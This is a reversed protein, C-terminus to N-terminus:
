RSNKDLWNFWETQEQKNIGLQKFLDSLKVKYNSFDPSKNKKLTALLKIFLNIDTPQLSVEQELLQIAELTKNQKLLQDVMISVFPHVSISIGFKEKIRQKYKEVINIASSNEAFLSDTDLQWLAPDYIFHLGEPISFYPSKSHGLTASSNFKFRFNIQNKAEFYKKFTEAFERFDEETRDGKLYTTSLYLAKDTLFGANFLIDFKLKIKDINKKSFAPSAAIIANFLNPDNLLTNIAFRGGLSHGILIKYDNSRYNSKVFPLIEKKLYSSFKASGSSDGFDLWRDKAQEIGVIIAEPTKYDSLDVSNSEIFRKSAVTLDFLSKNNGDLLIVIHFSDKRITYNEPVNVWIKRDEKLEKSHLIIEKTTQGFCFLPLVSLIYFFRKMM